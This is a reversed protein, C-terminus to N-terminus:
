HATDLTSLCGSTMKGLRELERYYEDTVELNGAFFDSKISYKHSENQYSALVQRDFVGLLHTVSELDLEDKRQDEM